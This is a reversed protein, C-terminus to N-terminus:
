VNALRKKELAKKAFASVNKSFNYQLEEKTSHQKAEAEGEHEKQFAHSLRYFM